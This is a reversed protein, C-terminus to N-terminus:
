TIIRAEPKEKEIGHIFSLWEIRAAAPISCPLRAGNPFAEEISMNWSDLGTVGKEKILQRQKIIKLFILFL